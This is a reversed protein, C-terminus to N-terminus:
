VGFTLASYLYWYRDPPFAPALDAPWIFAGPKLLAKLALDLSNLLELEADPLTEAEPRLLELTVRRSIEYRFRDQHAMPSQRYEELFDRWMTLRQRFEQRAKNAWASRWRSRLQELAQGAKALEAQQAPTRALAQLRQHSLLLNGLTLQPYPPQGSPASVGLPWFLEKSLLYDELQEIGAKLYRQEYDYTPTM